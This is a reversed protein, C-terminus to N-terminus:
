VPAPTPPAAAPAALAPAAAAPPPPFGWREVGEFGEKPYPESNGSVFGPRNYKKMREDRIEALQEDYFDGGVAQGSVPAPEPPM